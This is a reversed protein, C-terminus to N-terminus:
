PARGGIPLWGCHFHQGLFRMHGPHKQQVLANVLKLFRDTIIKKIKASEVRAFSIAAFFDPEVPPQRLIDIETDQRQCQVVFAFKGDATLPRGDVPKDQHAAQWQIAHQILGDLPARDAAIFDDRDCVPKRIKVPMCLRRFQRRLCVHRMKNTLLRLRALHECIPSEIEVARPKLFNKAAYLIYQGGLWFKQFRTNFAPSDNLPMPIQPRFM